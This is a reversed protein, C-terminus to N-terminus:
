NQDMVWRSGWETFSKPISGDKNLKVMFGTDDDIKLLYEDEGLKKLDELENDTLVRVDEYKEIM